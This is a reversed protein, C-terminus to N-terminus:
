NEIEQIHETKKKIIKRQLVPVLILIVAQILFAIGYYLSYNELHYKHKYMYLYRFYASNLSIVMLVRPFYAKKFFMLFLCIGGNIIFIIFLFPGIDDHIHVALFLANYIFTILEYITVKKYFFLILPIVFMFTAVTIVSHFDLIYLSFMALSVILLTLKNEFFRYIDQNIKFKPKKFIIEYHVLYTIFWILLGALTTFMLLIFYYKGNIISDQIFIQETTIKAYGILIPAYLVLNCLNLGVTLETNKFVTKKAEEDHTVNSLYIFRSVTYLVIGVLITGLNIFFPWLSQTKAYAVIVSIFGGLVTILYAFMSLMNFLSKEQKVDKKVELTEKEKIEGNLIDDVTVGFIIALKPLMTIEPFGEGTEWRSIAKDTVGLLNALDSQTLGKEKRRKQIFEGILKPNM